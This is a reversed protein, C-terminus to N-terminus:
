GPLHLLAVFESATRPVPLRRQLTGDGSLVVLTPFFHVQYRQMFTEAEPADYDVRVLVYDRALASKVTADTFLDQHMARCAGCWIASFDVLVPKGSTQAQALGAGIDLFQLQTRQLAREGLWTQLQVNGFYVLAFLAGLRLWKIATKKM